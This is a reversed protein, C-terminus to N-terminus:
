AVVITGNAVLYIAVVSLLLILGMVAKEQGGLERHDERVAQYYIIFGPIFSISVLLM